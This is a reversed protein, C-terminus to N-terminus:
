TLSKGAFRSPRHPGPRWPPTVADTINGTFVRSRGPLRRVVFRTSMYMSQSEESFLMCRFLSRSGGYRTIFFQIKIKQVVAIRDLKTIQM